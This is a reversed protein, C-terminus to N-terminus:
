GKDQLIEVEDHPDITRQELAKLVDQINRFTRLPRKSKNSTLEYLGGVYEQSPMAVPTKRDTPSILHKSPLMREYTEKAAEETAPVHFQSADGDFDMNFGKLVLTPVHVANGAVLQPRFGMYGLKHLVPARNMQVPKQDMVRLLSRHAEDDQQNISEMANAVTRGRRVMDRVIEKKYVDFALRKPIGIQDMNLDPNPVVVSRGVQDVASGILRRQVTGMKPNSGFIHQLVGRVNREKSKKTVPDGLGTVAKLANYLTLHEPGVYDDGMEKHFDKVAENASHLEKYLPNADAVMPVGSGGLTSIRRYAPPIVPASKLTWDRPHMGVRKTDMMYYLKRIAEDRKTKSGSQFAQKATAIEHDLNIGELAKVIADPGTKGNLHEKGALIDEFKGQTLGLVRKVPDEMVPNVLPTVLPIKSWKMGGHGGTIEPDFLGGPVPDLAEGSKVTEANKLTRGEALDEVSKNTMALFHTRKGDPVPDIGAARLQALYKQYVTTTHPEVPKQGRQYQLWYTDNRQGRVLGADRLVEYAGHSLIANVDLLSVRKSNSVHAGNKLYYSAGDEVTIDYVKEGPRKFRTYITAVVLTAPGYLRQSSKRPFREHGRYLDTRDVDADASGLRRDAKSRAPRAEQIHKADKRAHLSTLRVTAAPCRSGPWRYPRVASHPGDCYIEQGPQLLNAAIKTDHIFFEHGPTCEVVSGDTFTIVVLYRPADYEMWDTIERYVPIMNENLLVKTPVRVAKRKKVIEGITDSGFETWLKTTGVFCGGYGGKAPEDDQNYAGSSRAQGKSESTHHLKMMFRTGTAVGPIKQGTEPDTIEESLKMGHKGLENRVYEDHDQGTFDKVLYPQGTKRAIKGLGLEHAQAANTRSIMGNPSLLLEFPNGDKDHPMQSDPLIKSIVGKDGFRGSLKDAEVTPHYSKVIVVPGKKGQQVDVVEGDHDHDWAVSADQWSDSKRRLLRNPNMGKQKAAVILPQGHTVKQGVKIVGTDDMKGLQERTFRGPFLDSFAQRGQKTKNDVELEHQYAHESTMKRALSDSIVVADNHNLGKWPVYASYANIGMAMTGHQDTYNSGALLQGKQVTSGEQVIPEQNLLSKRNFPLNKYYPKISTTGDPHQMHIEDETVKTVRGPKDAAVAGFRHGLWQEYPQNTEEDVNQVHPAERHQLSLAQMYMRAGMSNRQGKNSSQFPITNTLPSFNRSGHPSVYDLESKKAYDLEGNRIVPVYDNKSEMSKYFGITKGALDQPSRWLKKGSKPDIFQSYLRGDSGKRSAVSASLDVGARESEPTKVVDLFGLHSNQVSRAELPIAAGSIGGEGMRTVNHLRDAFESTNIEELPQAVGSRLLVHDLQHTLAGSPMHQLHGAKSMKYLLKKQWGESDKAIREAFLDEPGLFKQYELADRDDPKAEGRNIKILKSTAALLVDKNLTPSVNGITSKNVFPNVKYGQYKEVLKAIRDVGPAALEEKSLLKHSLRDLADREKVGRNSQAIEKGWHHEIEDDKAGMATLLPLLPATSGAINLHFTGKDPDFGIRHTLGEGPLINLYTELEGNGKRRNYVGPELRQQNRVAYKTGNRVVTGFDSFHPVTAVVQKRSDVMKDTANDYLEWTGEVRRGLSGRSLIAKKVESPKRYEPDIYKPNTLKLTHTRNKVPPLNQMAGLVNGYVNKRLAGTDGFERLTVGEPVGDLDM